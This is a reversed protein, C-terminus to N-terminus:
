MLIVFLVGYIDEYISLSYKFIAVISFTSFHYCFAGSGSIFCQPSPDEEALFALFMNVEETKTRHLIWSFSCQRAMNGFFVKTINASYKAYGPFINLPTCM